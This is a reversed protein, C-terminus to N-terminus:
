NKTNEVDATTSNEQAGAGRETPDPAKENTKVFGNKLRASKGGNRDASGRLWRGICDNIEKDTTQPLGPTSHM